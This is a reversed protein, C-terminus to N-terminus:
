YSFCQCNKGATSLLLQQLLRGLASGDGSRRGSCVNVGCIEVRDSYFLVEGGKFLQSAVTETQSAGVQEVRQVKLPSKLRSYGVRIRCGM